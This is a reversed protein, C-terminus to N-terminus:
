WKPAVVFLSGSVRLTLAEVGLFRLSDFSVHLLVLSPCGEAFHIISLHPWIINHTPSIINVGM